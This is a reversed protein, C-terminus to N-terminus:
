WTGALRRRSTVETCHTVVRHAIDETRGAAEARHLVEYGGFAVRQIVARPIATPVPPQKSRLRGELPRSRSHRPMDATRIASGDDAPDHQRRSGRDHNVLASVTEAHLRAMKDHHGEGSPATKRTLTEGITDVDGDYGTSENLNQEDYKEVYPRAERRTAASRQSARGCERQQKAIDHL